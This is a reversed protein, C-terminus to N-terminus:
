PNPNLAAAEAVTAARAIVRVAVGAKAASDAYRKEKVVRTVRADDDVVCKSLADLITRELKDVDPKKDPYAPASPKLQGAANYHGRPRVLFFVLDVEVPRKVLMALGRREMENGAAARLRSEWQKLEVSRADTIVARQKGGQGKAIFARHNGKAVPELALVLFELKTGPTWTM